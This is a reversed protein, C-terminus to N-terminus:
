KEDVEEDFLILKFFGFLCHNMYMYKRWAYTLYANPSKNKRKKINTLTKSLVHKDYGRRSQDDSYIYIYLM